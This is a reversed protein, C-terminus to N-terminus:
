IGVVQQALATILPLTVISLVTSLAVSQCAYPYNRDYLQAYVATNAGIPAAAAILIALRISSDVPLFSFILITLLPVAILRVACLLYLRPTTVLSKLDSQALYVGLVIMALPSNLAAVGQVATSVVEPLQTGLGTVFIILGVVTGLVIPNLLIGKWAGKDRKDSLLLMGYVWQLICLGAIMGVLYFVANEGLCQRILPIGMFAANSFSIAINEIPDKRFLLAGVAMAIGLALFGMLASTVFASMKEASYPVCFSNIIVAPVVLWLLLTALDKSGIKSIKGGKFLLFGMAMYLAMTLTQKLVIMPLSM